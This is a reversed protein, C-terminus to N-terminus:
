RNFKMKHSIFDAVILNHDFALDPIKGLSFLKVDKADDGSKLKGGKVKLKYVLTVTHGRPDRKPDSYVGFLSEIQTVLGTEEKMERIVAEEVKENYEVFGGPLAFRDKYPSRGRKILVLKSKHIIIGDTSLSPKLFGRNKLFADISSIGRAYDDLLKQASITIETRGGKAGGRYSKVLPFGAAQEMEKIEGWLHRYSMKMEKACKSISQTESILNLIKARGESLLFKGDMELWVKAKLKKM